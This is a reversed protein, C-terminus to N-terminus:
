PFIPRHIIAVWCAAGHEAVLTALSAGALPGGEVVSQDAGRDCIEWSEAYDDGPGLAKGLETALGAGGSTDSSFRAFVCLTSRM